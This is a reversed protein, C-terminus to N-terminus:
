RLASVAAMERRQGPLMEGTSYMLCGPCSSRCCATGNDAFVIVATDGSREASIRVSIDERGGYKRSNDLLNVVIRRLLERDALVTMDPVDVTVAVGEQEEAVTELVPRLAM